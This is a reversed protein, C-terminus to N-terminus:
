MNIVKDSIKLLTGVDNDDIDRAAAHHANAPAVAHSALILGNQSVTVATSINARAMAAHANVMAMVIPM